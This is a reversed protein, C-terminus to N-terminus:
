SGARETLAALAPRSGNEGGELALPEGSGDAVTLLAAGLQRCCKELTDESIEAIDRLMSPLLRSMLKAAPHGTTEALRSLDGLFAVFRVHLESPAPVPEPTAGAAVEAAELIRSLKV